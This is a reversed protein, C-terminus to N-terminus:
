RSRAKRRRRRLTKHKKAVAPNVRDPPADKLHTLVFTSGRYAAQYRAGPRLKDRVSRRFLRMFREVAQSLTHAPVEIDMRLWYRDGVSM